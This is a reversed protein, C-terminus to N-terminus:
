YDAFIFSFNCWQWCQASRDFIQRCLFSDSIVYARVKSAFIQPFDIYRQSCLAVRSFPFFPSPPLGMWFDSQRRRLWDPFVFNINAYWETSRDDDRTGGSAIELPPSFWTSDAMTRVASKREEIMWPVSAHGRTDRSDFPNLSSEFRRDILGGM